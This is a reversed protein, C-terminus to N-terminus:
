RSKPLRGVFDKFREAIRRKEEVELPHRRDACCRVFFGEFVGVCHPALVAVPIGLRASESKFKEFLIYYPEFLAEGRVDELYLETWALEALKGLCVYAQAVQPVARRRSDGRYALGQRNVDEEEVRNGDLEVLSVTCAQRVVAVCAAVRVEKNTVTEVQKFVAFCYDNPSGKMSLIEIPIREFRAVLHDPLPVERVREVRGTAVAERVVEEPERKECGCCLVLFAYFLLGLLKVVIEKLHPARNEGRAAKM